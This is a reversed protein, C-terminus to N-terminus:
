YRWAIDFKDYIRIKSKLMPDDFSLMLNLRTSAEHNAVSHIVANNFLYISGLEMKLISRDSAGRRFSYSGSGTIPVHVRHTLAAREKITSTDTHEAILGNPHLRDVEYCIFQKPEFLECLVTDRLLENIPPDAQGKPFIVGDVGSHRSMDWYTNNRTYDISTIYAVLRDYLKPEISGIKHLYFNYDM